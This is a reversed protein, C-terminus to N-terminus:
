EPLRFSAGLASHDGGCAPRLSTSCITASGTSMPRCSTSAIGIEAHAFAKTVVALVYELMAEFTLDLM